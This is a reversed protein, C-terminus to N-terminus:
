NEKTTTCQKQLETNKVELAKIKKRNREVLMEPWKCEKCHSVNRDGMVQEWLIRCSPCSADEIARKWQKEFDDAERKGAFSFELTVGRDDVRRLYGRTVPVFMM